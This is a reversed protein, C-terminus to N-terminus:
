KAYNQVQKDYYSRMEAIEKKLKFVKTSEIVAAETTTHGAGKNKVWLVTTDKIWEIMEIPMSVSVDTGLTGLLRQSMPDIGAGLADAVEQRNGNEVVEIWEASTAFDMLQKTESVLDNKQLVQVVCDNLGVAVKNVSALDRDDMM